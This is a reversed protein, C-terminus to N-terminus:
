AALVQCIVATNVVEALSKFIVKQLWQGTRTVSQSELYMYHHVCHLNLCSNKYNCSIRYYWINYLSPYYGFCYSLAFKSWGCRPHFGTLWKQHFKFSLVICGLTYGWALNSKSVVVQTTKAFLWNPVTLIREKKKTRKTMLVPQM